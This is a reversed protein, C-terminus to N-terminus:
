FHGDVGVWTPTIALRAGAAKASPASAAPSLVFFGVAAAALGAGGAIFAITSVTAAGRGSDVDNRASPPCSVGQCADKVRSAKGLAVAGTISGVVVGAVGVGLGVWTVVHIPRKGEATDPAKAPKATDGETAIKPSADTFAVDIDKSESEALALSRKEERDAAHVVIAHDGPNVRRTASLSVVPANAGDVSVTVTADPKVGSVKVNITPIRTRIQDALEAAETRAAASKETEDSAVKLRAISLLVERAEVLEGLQLHAKGLELGTVPTQGYGHAAKFRELAGRLDGKQRLDKGQRYLERASELDAASPESTQANAASALTLAAVVVLPLCRKSSTTM